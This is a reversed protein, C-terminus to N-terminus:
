PKAELASRRRLERDKEERFLKRFEWAFRAFASFAVAISAILMQGASAGLAFLLAQTLANLALFIMGIGATDVKEM